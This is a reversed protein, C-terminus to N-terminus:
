GNYIYVDAYFVQTTDTVMDYGYSEQKFSGSAPDYIWNFDYPMDSPTIIVTNEKEPHDFYTLGYSISNDEMSMMGTGDDNFSYYWGDEVQWNNATLATAISSVPTTEAALNAIYDFQEKASSDESLRMGYEHADYNSDYEIWYFIDGRDYFQLDAFSITYDGLTNYEWTGTDYIGDENMKVREYTGDIQFHVIYQNGLAPGLILYYYADNFDNLIGLIREAEIIGSYDAPLTNILEFAAASNCGKLADNAQEITKSLEEWGLFEKLEMFLPDGTNYYGRTLCNMANSPPFNSECEYYNLLIHRAYEVYGPVFQEDDSVVESLVSCLEDYSAGSEKLQKFEEWHTLADENPNSYDSEDYDWRNDFIITGTNNSDITPSSETSKDTAPPKTTLDAEFPTDTTVEIEEIATPNNSCGCFSLLYIFSLILAFCHRLKM